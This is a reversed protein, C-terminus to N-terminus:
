TITKRGEWNSIWIISIIIIGITLIMFSFIGNIPIYTNFPLIIDTLYESFRNAWAWPLYVWIKDGLTTLSLAAIIMGGFGLIGSIEIGYKYSIYHYFFYQFISGAIHIIGTLYYLSLNVEEVNVIFKLGLIYISITTFIALGYSFIMMIIQSLFTTIKSQFVGLMNYFHSAENEADAVMGCIISIAVPTSVGIIEFFIRYSTEPYLQINRSLFYLVLISSLLIPLLLHLLPFYSRRRKKFEGWICRYFQQM